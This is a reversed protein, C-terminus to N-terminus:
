VPCARYGLKGNGTNESLPSYVGSKWINLSPGRKEPGSEDSIDLKNTQKKGASCDVLKSTFASPRGDMPGDRATMRRNNLLKEVVM